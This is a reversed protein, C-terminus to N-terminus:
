GSRQASEQYFWSFVKILLVQKAGRTHEGQHRGNKDTNGHKRAAVFFSLVGVDFIWHVAGHRLAVEADDIDRLVAVLTM